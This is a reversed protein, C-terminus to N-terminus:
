AGPKMLDTVARWVSGAAHAAEGLHEAARLEGGRLAMLQDRWFLLDLSHRHLAYERTYGIAGHVQHCIDYTVEVGRGAVLAAADLLGAMRPAGLGDRAACALALESIAQCAATEEAVLALGHQIAQFRALAQGFQKRDQVYVLSLELAAEMAAGIQLVRGLALARTVDPSFAPLGVHAPRYPGDRPALAAARDGTALLMAMDVPVAARAAARIIEAADPWAERDDPSPLADAFGLALVKELLADRDAQRPNRGDDSEGAHWHRALDDFARTAAERVMEDARLLPELRTANM